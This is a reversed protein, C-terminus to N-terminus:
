FLKKDFRGETVRITDCDTKTLTFEFKGAIIGNQMDLKTIELYGEVKDEREYFCGESEYRVTGIQPDGLTYVGTQNVNLMYIYFHEFFESSKKRFVRIDFSGGKYGPDYVIQYSPQFTHPRGKPVWVQGNVLAGFTNKGEMTAAPLVEKPTTDKKKCSGISLIASLLLFPLVRAKM